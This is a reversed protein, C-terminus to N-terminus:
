TKRPPFSPNKMFAEHPTKPTEPAARTLSHSNARRRATACCVPATHNGILPEAQPRRAGKRRTVKTEALT